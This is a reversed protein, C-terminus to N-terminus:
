NEEWINRMMQHLNNRKKRGAFKYNSPHPLHAPPINRCRTHYVSSSCPSLPGPISHAPPCTCCNSFFIAVWEKRGPSCIELGLGAPLGGHVQSTTSRASEWHNGLIVQGPRRVKSKELAGFHPHLASKEGGRSWDFAQRTNSNGCILTKWRAEGWRRGQSSPESIEKWHGWVEGSSPHPCPQGALETSGSLM